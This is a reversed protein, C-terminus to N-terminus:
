EWESRPAKRGHGYADLREREVTQPSSAHRRIAWATWLPGAVATVGLIAAVQESTLAVGFAVLLAIVAAVATGIAGFLGSPDTHSTPRTM